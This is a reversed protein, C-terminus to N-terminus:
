DLSVPSPELSWRLDAYRQLRAAKAEDSSGDPAVSLLGTTTWDQRVVLTRMTINRAGVLDAHLTYHCKKCVFLLGHRPRNEPATHGCMPCAQSTYHADVKIAMSGQLLAKYAILSQLEAFSWKSYAHNAKRQKKSTNKGTRRRTRERIDALHEVGIFSHPHATVISKSVRHNADRKLRRERGSMAVLRRTASRTGKKQLRKRLRAYHNAKPVIQKGSYFTCTGRTSSTVALYRVGVDVGAIGTQTEPTPDAMQLELSVLLYFTKKPKDYWLKAAGIEAGHHIREVHKRYGTYPIIVRGELTLISVQQNNKFTYDKRNQYTLTPSVFTPAHDLGKYRKKTVGAKRAATNAKVKTWLGKYTAGVQRSVSCTMQSPLHFRVRIEDYTGDQLRAANSMNGHAFAYQSVYNLADRYALQTARLAAFQEPTTHLRIKATIITKM